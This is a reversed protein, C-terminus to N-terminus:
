QETREGSGRSPSRGLGPLMSSSRLPLWRYRWGNHNTPPAVHAGHTARHRERAKAGTQVPSPSRSPLVHRSGEVHSARPRGFRERRVLPEPTVHFPRRFRVLRRPRAPYQLGEGFALALLSSGDMTGCAYTPHPPRTPSLLAQYATMQAETSTAGPASPDDSPRLASGSGRMTQARSDIPPKPAPCQWPEQYGM